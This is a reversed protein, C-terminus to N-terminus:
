YIVVTNHLKIVDAGTYVAKTQGPRVRKTILGQKAYRWLTTSGIHLLQCVEGPAYIGSPDITPPLSAVM